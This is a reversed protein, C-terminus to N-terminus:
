KQEQKSYKSMGTMRFDYIPIGHGRFNQKKKFLKIPPPPTIAEPKNTNQSDFFPLSIEKLLFLIFFFSTFNGIQHSSSFLSLNNTLLQM